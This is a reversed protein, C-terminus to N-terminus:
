RVMYKPAEMQVLHRGILARRSSGPTSSGHQSSGPTGPMSRPQSNPLYKPLSNQRTLNSATKGGGADLRANVRISSYDVNVATTSMAELEVNGMDDRSGINGKGPRPILPSYVLPPGREADGPSLWRMQEDLMAEARAITELIYDKAMDAFVCVIVMLATSLALGGQVYAWPITLFGTGLIYNITFCFAVFPSFGEPKKPPIAWQPSAAVSQPLGPTSKGSAGASRDAGVAVQGEDVGM